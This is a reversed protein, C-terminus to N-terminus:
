QTPPHAWPVPYPPRDVARLRRQQTRRQHESRSPPNGPLTPYAIPDQHPGSHLDLKRRLIPCPQLPQYRIPVCRPLVSPWGLNHQETFADAGHLDHAPSSPRLKYDPASLGPNRSRPHVAQPTVLRTRGAALGQRSRHHLLHDGLSRRLPRRSRGVPRRSHHGPRDANRHTRHLIDALCM